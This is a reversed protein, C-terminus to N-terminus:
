TCRLLIRGMGQSESCQVTRVLADRYAGRQIDQLTKACQVSVRSGAAGTGNQSVDARGGSARILPRVPEGECVFVGPGLLVSFRCCPVCCGRYARCGECYPVANPPLQANCMRAPTIQAPRAGKALPVYPTFLVQLGDCVSKREKALTRALPDDSEEFVKLFYALGRAWRRCM